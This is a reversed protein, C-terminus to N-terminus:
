FPIEDSMDGTDGSESSPKKEAKTEVEEPARILVADHDAGQYKIQGLYMKIEQGVALDTDDGFLKRLIRANTKNLALRGGSEFVINLKDFRGQVVGAITDTIPGDRVDDVTIFRSGTYEKLSVMSRSRENPRAHSIRQSDPALRRPSSNSLRPRCWLTRGNFRQVAQWPVGREIFPPLRQGCKMDTTVRYDRRPLYGISSQRPPSYKFM